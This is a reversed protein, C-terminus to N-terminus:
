INNSLNEVDNILNNIDLQLSTINPEYQNKINIIEKKLQEIYLNLQENYKNNNTQNPINEEYENDTINYNSQEFNNNISEEIEDEEYRKINNNNNNNDKIKNLIQNSTLLFNNKNIEFTKINNIEHPEENISINLSSFLSSNNIFEKSLMIKKIGNNNNSYNLFNQDNDILCNKKNINIINIKDTLKKNLNIYNNNKINYENNINMFNLYQNKYLFTYIMWKNFYIHKKFFLKKFNQKLKKKLFIKRLILFIKINFNKNLFKPKIGKLKKWKLFFLRKKNNILYKNNCLFNIFLTKLHQKKYLKFMKNNNNLQYFIIRLKSTIINIFKTLFLIYKNYNYVAYIEDVESNFINNYDSENYNFSSSMLSPEYYYFKIFQQFFYLKYEINKKLKIEELNKIFEDIIIEINYINNNYINYNLSEM